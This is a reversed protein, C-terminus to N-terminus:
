AADVGAAMVMDRRDADEADVALADFVVLDREASRGPLIARDSGEDAGAEGIVAYDIRDLRHDVGIEAQSLRGCFCKQFGNAADTQRWELLSEISLAGSTLSM